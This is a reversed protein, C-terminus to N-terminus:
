KIIKGESVGFLNEQGVYGVYGDIHISCFSGDCSNIDVLVGEELSAIPVLHKNKKSHLLTNKKIFAKGKKQTVMNKHVWCVQGDKDKIKKWLEHERLVLVPQPRTFMTEISYSRGPGKRCHVSKSKIHAFHPYIVEEVAIAQFLSILYLFTMLGICLCYFFLRNRKRFSRLPDM